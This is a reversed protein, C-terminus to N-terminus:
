WTESEAKLEELTIYNGENVEQVIADLEQGLKSKYVPENSGIRYGVIEDEPEQVKVYSNLMLHVVKLFNEDKIQDLYSVIEDKMQAASMFMLKIPVKM